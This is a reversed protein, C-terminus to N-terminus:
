ANAGPNADPKGGRHEPPVDPDILAEDENEAVDGDEEYLDESPMPDLTTGLTAFSAPQALGAYTGAEHAKESARSARTASEQGFLFSIAAGIFGAVVLSFGQPDPDNRAIFLMYGGGAIIILAAVYTAVLKITDSQV